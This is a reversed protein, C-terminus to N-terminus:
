TTTKNVIQLNGRNPTFLLLNSNRLRLSGAALRGTRGRGLDIRSLKSFALFVCTGLDDSAIQAIGDPREVSPDFVRHRMSISSLAFYNSFVDRWRRDRDLEPVRSTSASSTRATKTASLGGIV